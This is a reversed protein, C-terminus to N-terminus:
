GIPTATGHTIVGDEVTYTVNFSRSTGDTQLANLVLQVVTGQVSVQSISDQQTNAYGKAFADYDADGLNKGGLGWATKYERNNIAAFYATVVAEPEAAATTTGETPEGFSSGGGADGTETAVPDSASYPDPTAASDSANYPNPTASQTYAYSATPPTWPQAQAGGGTSFSGGVLGLLLVLLLPVGIVALGWTRAAGAPPILGGARYPPPPNPATLIPPPNPAAPTSPPPPPGLDNM